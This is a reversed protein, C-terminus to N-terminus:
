HTQGALDYYFLSADSMSYASSNTETRAPSLAIRPRLGLVSGAIMCAPRPPM